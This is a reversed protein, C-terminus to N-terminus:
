SLRAAIWASLDALVRDQDLDNMTEHFSGEYMRLTKDQAGLRSHILKSGDPNTIKDATGHFLLTPVIIRGAGEQILTMARLIEAGTRALTGGYYSLPDNSARKVVEPDRSILETRIKSTPLQPAIASVVGAIKVLLPSFDDGIKLAASSLILGAIRPQRTITWLAAIAGGMSHGLVFVPKGPAEAQVGRFFADLDALYDEFRNVFARAGPSKGHGRHDWTHTEVGIRGLREAVHAYRSSHEGLGHVVVLAAKSAEEPKWSQAYLDLNDATKFSAQAHVM